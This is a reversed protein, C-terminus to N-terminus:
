PTRPSRDDFRGVALMQQATVIEPQAVGENALALPSPEDPLGTTPEVAFIIGTGDDQLWSDLFQYMPM